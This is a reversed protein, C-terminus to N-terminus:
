GSRFHEEWAQFMLVNWLAYQADLAGALHQHWLNRVIRQDFMATRGLSEPSLLTEAWERLPGRLWADIPVAFGAKPRDVLPRPVYRDLVRRLIWKGQGDRRKLHMPLRWALAVVRPDLFPVRAELATAMSARDVKVLIDDPLYGVLDWYMMREAFSPLAISVREPAVDADTAGLVADDLGSSHSILREYLSEQTPAELLGSLKHLKFGVRTARIPRGPLHRFPEIARDYASPSIGALIRRAFRRLPMPTAVLRRWLRDGLVHRNYGAFLEDGGDGSLAVTVDRRALKSVLYTPVQSSDAFPEDYIRPLDPIVALADSPTVYLETHDTGLHAAVLRAAASEDYAREHFGISFTRVPRSSQAQMMAVITSSDIGGSLFAGLPVDSVMQARVADRLVADLADIAEADTGAFPHVTGEEAVARVSWYTTMVPDRSPNSVDFEAIVGPRLKHMGRFITRPAPVYGYRLLAKVSERDIEGAFGPIRRFPTLESAFALSGSICGYYLPKVGLHDRVLSLRRTARDYLAFAFIGNLRRVTAPVGWAAVGALIVETDSSGRFTAGGARLEDRLEGFNYVEGNYSIVYRRGADLMPQHGEASLDLISLRRHGLLVGCERDHWAGCDDPGRYGIVGNMASLWETSQPGAVGVIGCM